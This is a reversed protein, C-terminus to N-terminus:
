PVNAPEALGVTASQVKSSPVFPATAVAALSKGSMLQKRLGADTLGLYKAAAHLGAMIPGPPGPPGPPGFGGRPGFRGGPGDPPPGPRPPAGRKPAGPPPPAALPPPGGRFHGPGPGGFFPLGGHEDAEKKLRDAEARTLRGAAVDADLRDSVAGSIAAKLKEPSVNLRGAVDNLLADRGSGAGAGSSGSSAAFAAGGAGAVLALGAAGGAIRRKLTLEM